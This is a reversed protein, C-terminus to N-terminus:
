QDYLLLYSTMPKTLNAGFALKSFLVDL